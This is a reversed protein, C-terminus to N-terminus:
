ELEEFDAEEPVTPALTSNDVTQIDSDVFDAETPIVPALGDPLMDTGITDTFTAEMPITPSLFACEVCIPEPSPPNIDNDGTIEAFLVSIQSFFIATIIIIAKM